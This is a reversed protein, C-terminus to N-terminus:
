NLLSLDVYRDSTARLHDRLVRKLRTLQSAYRPDSALNNFEWPDDQLDYLEFRPLRVGFKKHDIRALWRYADPFENRREVIDRYVRNRWPLVRGDALRLEFHELDSNVVRAENPKDRFILKWRGDFASREQMGDDRRQGMHHVNAFVVGRGADAAVAGDRAVDAVSEGQVQSPIPLGLLDLVTPLVDVGSVMAQTEVGRAVGPGALAFPVHLGFQHLSMKGRHYPPGHDSMFLIVTRDAEGSEEVARMVDGLQRDAVEIYDMYEAWDQRVAPTDPLFPPVEVADADVTLGVKDGDRFPRHPAQINCFFFWPRDAREAAEIFQKTREYNNPKFWEDYPFKENPAVHLKGSVGMYYGARDLVQVLTVLPRRIQVRSYIPLSREAPTMESAPKFINNTNEILGNAHSYMGTYMAAKSPSCVPYAVYARHFYVGEAVLRDMNPTSLGPTDLFSLYPGQDETLVVLLNLRGESDARDTSAAAPATVVILLVAALRTWYRRTFVTSRQM